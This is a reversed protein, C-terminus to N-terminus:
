NVRSQVHWGVTPTTCALTCQLSSQWKHSHLCCCDALIQMCFSPRVLMKCASILLSSSSSMYVDPALPHLGVSQRQVQETGYCPAAAFGSQPPSQGGSCAPMLVQIFAAKRCSAPPLHGQAHLWLLWASAGRGRAGALVKKLGSM